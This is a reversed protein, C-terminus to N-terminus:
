VNKRIEKEYKEASDILEEGFKHLLNSFLVVDKKELIATKSFYEASAGVWEGTVFPMNYIKSYLNEVIESFDNSLKVIDLGSKKIKETDVSLM